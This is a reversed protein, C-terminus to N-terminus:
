RNMSEVLNAVNAQQEPTLQIYHKVLNRLQSNNKVENLLRAVELDYKSAFDTDRPDILDSKLIGFYRALLEVKGIRPVAIGKCWTNFTQTSVGIADAVEKQTKNNIELYYRLNKSLIRKQEEDSMIVGRETIIRYYAINSIKEVFFLIINSKGISM